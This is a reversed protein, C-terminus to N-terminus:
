ARVLRRARRAQLALVLLGAAILPLVNVVHLVLV